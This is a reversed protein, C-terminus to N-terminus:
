LHLCNLSLRPITIIADDRDGSKLRISISYLDFVPDFVLLQDPPHQIQSTPI